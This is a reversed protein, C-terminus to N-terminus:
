VVEVVLHGDHECLVECLMGKFLVRSGASVEGREFAASLEEGSEFMMVEQPGDATMVTM